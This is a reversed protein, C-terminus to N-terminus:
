PVIIRRRQRPNAKTKRANGRDGQGEEQERDGGADRSDEDEGQGISAPEDIDDIYGISKGKRPKDAREDAIAPLGSIARCENLTRIGSDLERVLAEINDKHNVRKLEARDFKFRFRGASKQRETLLKRRFEDEIKVFWPDIGSDVVEERHQEYSAYAVSSEVGVVSPPVKLFNAIHKDNLEQTELFQSAENPITLQEYDVGDTLVVTGHSGDLSQQAKNFQKLFERAKDVGVGPPFKLLGSATGGSGFFNITHSGSVHGIRLSQSIMRTFDVGWLGDNSLGFIHIVDEPPAKFSRDRLNFLYNMDGTRPDVLLACASPAVPWLAAPTADKTREIWSVHNGWWVAQFICLQRWIVSSMFRNADDHILRWAPHEMADEWGGASDMKQLRCPTKMVMDAVYNTGRWAASNALGNLGYTCDIPIDDCKGVLNELDWSVTKAM